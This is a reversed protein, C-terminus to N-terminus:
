AHPLVHHHDGPPVGNLVAEGAEILTGVIVEGLREFGALQERTATSQQAAGTLKAGGFNGDGVEDQIGGRLTNGPRAPIHREGGLFIRQEFIKGAVGAANHPPRFDRLVHPILREIGERIQDFNVYIAHASFDVRIGALREEMGAAAGAVQKARQIIGVDWLRSVFTNRRPRAGLRSRGDPLVMSSETRTRSVSQYVATSATTSTASDRM